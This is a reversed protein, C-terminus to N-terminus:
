LLCVEQYVKFLKKAVKLPIQSFFKETDNDKAPTKRSNLHIKENKWEQILHFVNKTHGYHAISKSYIVKIQLGHAILDLDKFLTGLDVVADFKISCYDCSLEYPKFHGM